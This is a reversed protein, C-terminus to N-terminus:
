LYGGAFRRTGGGGLKEPRASYKCRWCVTNLYFKRSFVYTPTLAQAPSIHGGPRLPLLYQKEGEGDHGPLKQLLQVVGHVADDDSAVAPSGLCNALIHYGCDAAADREDKEEQSYGDAQAVAAGHEDGLEVACAPRM